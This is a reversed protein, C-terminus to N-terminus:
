LQVSPTSGPGARSPSNGMRLITTKNVGKRRWGPDFYVVLLPRQMGPLVAREEGARRCNDPSSSFKPKKEWIERFYRTASQKVPDEVGAGEEEERRRKSDKCQGRPDLVLKGKPNNGCQDYGRAKEPEQPPPTSTEPKEQSLIGTEPRKRRGPEGNGGVSNHLGLVRINNGGGPSEGRLSKGHAEAHV